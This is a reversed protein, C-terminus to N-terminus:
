RDVETHTQTDSSGDRKLQRFPLYSCCCHSVAVAIAVAAVPLGGSKTHVFLLQHVVQMQLKQDKVHGSLERERM